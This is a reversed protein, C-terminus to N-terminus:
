PWDQCKFLWHKYLLFHSPGHCSCAECHWTLSWCERRPFAALEQQEALWSSMASVWAQFDRGSVQIYVNLGWCHGGRLSLSHSWGPHCGCPHETPQAFLASSDQRGEGAAGVACGLLAGPWWGAPCGPCPMGGRRQLLAVEPDLLLCSLSAKLDLPESVCSFAQFNPLKLMLVWCAPSLSERCILWLPSNYPGLCFFSNFNPPHELRQMLSYFPLMVEEPQMKHPKLHIWVAVSLDFSGPINFILRGKCVGVCSLSSVLVSLAAQHSQEAALCSPNEPFFLVELLAEDCEGSGAAAAPSVLRLSM